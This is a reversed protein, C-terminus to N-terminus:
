SVIFDVGVAMYGIGGPMLDSTTSDIATAPSHRRNQYTAVVRPEGVDGTVLEQGDSLEDTLALGNLACLGIIGELTGSAILQVDLLSQRDKARITAM